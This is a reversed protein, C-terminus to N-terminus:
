LIKSGDQTPEDFLLHAVFWLIVLFISCFFLLIEETRWEHKMGTQDKENDRLTYVYEQEDNDKKSKLKWQQYREKKKLDDPDNRDFVSVIFRADADVTMGVDITREGNDLSILQKRSLRHLLFNFEGIRQLPLDDGVDEVAVITVGKQYIDALKFSAYNMAPLAMGSELIPIYTENEVGMSVLVGITHPLADLMLANRLEHKPVLGSIIASQIAAGQVVAADPDISYCLENKQFKAQLMTRIAPTRTAGGVLIVEDISECTCQCSNLGKEVLRSVRDVLHQIIGNFEQRTITIEEKKFYNMTTEKKPLVDKGDGSLDEKAIRCSMRLANWDRKSLDTQPQEKIKEKLVYQALADDMDDGGLRREGVTTLVKFSPENKNFSTDHGDNNTKNNASTMDAITIDTTGGGMDVCIIRRGEIKTRERQDSNSNNSRNPVIKTPSVFLGYAMAAATSEVLINSFSPNLQM